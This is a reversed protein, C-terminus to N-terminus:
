SSCDGSSGAIGEAESDVPGCPRGLTSSGVADAFRQLEAMLALGDM